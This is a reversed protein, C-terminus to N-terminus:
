FNMKVGIGNATLSLKFDVPVMGTLKGHNYLKVANKAHTSYASSFPISICILGAGIGAMAWNAKGGGLATGIPWGVMFGGACGFVTGVDFNNKAIQMEKFAEPNSQTKAMLQRPTLNKGNQRFVVGLSKRIEITDSQYQAFLQSISLLFILILVPKKM